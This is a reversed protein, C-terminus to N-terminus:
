SLHDMEPQWCKIKINSKSEQLKLTSNIDIKFILKRKEKGITNQFKKHKNWIKYVVYKGTILRRGWFNSLAFLSEVDSTIMSSDAFWCFTEGDWCAWSHVHRDSETKIVGIFM